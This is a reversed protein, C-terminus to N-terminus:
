PNLILRASGPLTPCDGTNISGGNGRLDVTDGVLSGTYSTGTNGNYAIRGFPSFVVGKWTSSNGSLSIAPVTADVNCPDGLTPFTTFLWLGDVYPTITANSDTWTIKGTAVVTIDLVAGTGASIQADGDVYYLGDVGPTFLGPAPTFYSSAAQAASAKAGGPQYDAINYQIPYTTETPVQVPPGPNVTLPQPTNIGDGYECRGNISNAVGTNKVWSNSHVSGSIALNNSRLNLTNGCTANNGWIAFPCLPPLTAACASAEIGMTAIGLLRIFNPPYDVRATVCVGQQGPPPSGFARIQVSGPYYTGRFSTAENRTVTYEQIRHYIRAEDTPAVALERAGALAAADAANQMKRRQAFAEAGDLGLGVFGILAVLALALVVLAQGAQDARRYIDQNLDM